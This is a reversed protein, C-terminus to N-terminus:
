IDLKKFLDDMDEAYFVDEGRDTKEFIELTEANPVYMDFPLGRENVVKTLAIRIFDSVTLGLTALIEHAEKKLHKDIRARVVDKSDVSVSM